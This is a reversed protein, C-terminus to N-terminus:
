VDLVAGEWAALSLSGDSGMAEGDRSRDTGVLIRGPGVAVGTAGASLNLVVLTHEGRRWAWVGDPTGDLRQYPGCRLDPRGKRLALLAQTLQLPSAPVDWQEAVSGDAPAGVPLWPDAGGAPAFELNPGPAWPMPTRSPDRSPGAQFVGTGVPDRRQAESVPVDGM